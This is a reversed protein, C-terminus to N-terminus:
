YSDVPFPSEQFIRKNASTLFSTNWCRIGVPSQVLSISRPMPKYTKISAYDMPEAKIRALEHESGTTKSPRIFIDGQHIVLFIKYLAVCWPENLEDSCLSAEEMVTPRLSVLAFIYLIVTPKIFEEGCSRKIHHAMKIDQYRLIHFRAQSGPYTSHIIQTQVKIMLFM